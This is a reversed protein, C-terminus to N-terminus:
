AKYKEFSRPIKGTIVYDKIHHFGNFVPQRRQPEGSTYVNASFCGVLCNKSVKQLATL